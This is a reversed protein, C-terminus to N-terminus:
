RDPMEEDAHLIVRDGERFWGFVEVFGGEAQGIRVATKKVHHGDSLLVFKGLTSNVVASAPVTWASSDGQVSVTVRAFMGPSFPGKVNPIDAEARMNRLGPSIEGSLRSIAAQFTKGPLSNISFKVQEGVRVMSAAAEPLDFQLRLQNVQKIELMPKSRDAASVLTGVSVNRETIVGDFPARLSLYGSFIRQADWGAKEANRLSLAADMKAKANSLDLPSVAGPTRNAESLRDFQEKAAAYDAETKAVRERAQVVSQEQEPAEIKLLLDGQHVHQGIDVQVQQVFGNMRPYLSVQQWATLQAPLEYLVRLGHHQLAVTEMSASAKKAPAKEPTSETSHCSAFGLAAVSIMVLNYKM